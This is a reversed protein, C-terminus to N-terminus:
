LQYHKKPQLTTTTSNRLLIYSTLWDYPWNTQAVYGKVWHIQKVVAKKLNYSQSTALAHWSIQFVTTMSLQSNNIACSFIRAYPMNQTFHRGLHWGVELHLNPTPGRGRSTPGLTLGVEPVSKSTPCVKKWRDLLNPHISPRACKYKSTPTM